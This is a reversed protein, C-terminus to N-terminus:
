DFHTHTAERSISRVLTDAIDRLKLNRGNSASKLIEVATEQSCRNQAMIIGVALDIITRSELASRLHAATEVLRALRLGLRLVKNVQETYSKAAEVAEADFREPTASYLNLAAKADDELDFPVALVSCIGYQRVAAAYAPWRLEADLDPIEITLQDRAATMCPGDGFSYQIEDMQRAHDSSSAVTAAKRDRLLTIGCLVQDDDNSLILAAHSALGNLFEEIDKSELILGQLYDSISSEAADPHATTNSAVNLKGNGNHRPDFADMGWPFSRSEPVDPPM